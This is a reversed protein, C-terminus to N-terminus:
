SIALSELFAAGSAELSHRLDFAVSRVRIDEVWADLPRALPAPYVLIAEHCGKIKAYAIMQAVDDTSPTVPAKYKTDLVMRPRNTAQSLLVLDINFYLGTAEGIQVPDQAKLSWNPGVHQAMWEAVFLEFLRAMNVLFPLMTREGVEYHPGSNELFFRCLAHLPRYDENLRNYLRGSCARAPFHELTTLGALQRYAQRVNSMVRDSCLGSRAITYLTWALLRNEETDATHEHYHCQTNSDWPTRIARAVDMRGRIYPLRDTEPMYARYFGKRGRDLVRKALVNALQEYFDELTRADFTGDLFKFSTLRYAYELMRFLNGIPVKPRLSLGSDPGLPIYGVWGLSTLRWKRGTKFSPAEVAIKDAYDRFLAEEVEASIADAPFEALQYETLEVIM